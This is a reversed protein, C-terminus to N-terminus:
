FFDIQLLGNDFIIYYDILAQSYHGITQLDMSSTNVPGLYIEFKIMPKVSM